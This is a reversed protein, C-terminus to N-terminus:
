SARAGAEGPQLRAEAGDQHGYRLKITSDADLIWATNLGESSSHALAHNALAIMALEDILKNV